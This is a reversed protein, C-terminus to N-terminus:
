RSKAVAETEGAGPAEFAARAADHMRALRAGRRLGLLQLLGLALALWAFLDGFRAYFTPIKLPRVAVTRAAPIGPPLSASIRGLPDVVSTLGTNTAIVLYRRSEIARWLALSEHQWPALTRGFWALNALTVLLTAGERVESRVLSGVLDEYCILVGVRLGPLVEIPAANRGASFDGTQPSLARLSPFLDGLPLYEGFPMLMRKDYRGGIRGDPLRLLASNFWDLRQEGPRRGPRRRYSVAGFLLPAPAGPFPDAQDLAPADHPLGWEIVTEPWVLLDPPPDLQLSLRRYRAVNERLESARHKEELSVNGQVVGVRVRDAAAVVREIAGGRWGGYCVLGAILLSARLVAWRRRGRAPLALAASAYAIAFSLGYPGTIDGIQLLAPVARQSHALRWPFLNPYLFEAAVWLCAALAPRAAPGAWRLAGAVVAFQAAGYATLILYFLVALPLPFGGFLHITRILWIFAPLEAAVGYVLGLRAARGPSSARVALGFLPALALWALLWAAETLFPLCLCASGALLLAARSVAGRRLADLRAAARAEPPAAM